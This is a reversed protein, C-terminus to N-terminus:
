VRKTFYVFIEEQYISKGNLSSYCQDYNMQPESAEKKIKRMELAQVYKRTIYTNLDIELAYLFILLINVSMWKLQSIRKDIGPHLSVHSLQKGHSFKGFLSSYKNFNYM